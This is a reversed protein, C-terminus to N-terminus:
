GIAQGPTKKANAAAWGKELEAWNRNGIVEIWYEYEFDLGPVSNGMKANHKHSNTAEQIALYYWASQNANDPWKVMDDFLLDEPSETMRKLMRNVLTVFEARTIPKNPNFTGDPYGVTLGARSAYVIDRVAWHGQVDSYVDGIGGGSDGRYRRAFRTAITALEARTIENDAKFTGDPYGSFINMNNMNNMVSVANNYWRGQTVDTFPNSQMWNTNRAADTLLRFYVTAVEARTVDREPRVTGDPYWAFQLKNGQSHLWYINYNDM